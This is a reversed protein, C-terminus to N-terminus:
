FYKQPHAYGDGRVRGETLVVESEQLTMALTLQGLDDEYRMQIETTDYEHGHSLVLHTWGVSVVMLSKLKMCSDEILSRYDRSIRRLRGDLRQGGAPRCYQDSELWLSSLHADDSNCATSTVAAAHMTHVSPPQV